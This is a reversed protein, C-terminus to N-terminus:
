NTKVSNDFKLMFLFLNWTNKIESKNDISFVNFHVGFVQEFLSM